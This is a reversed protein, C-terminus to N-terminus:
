QAAEPGVLRALTAPPLRRGALVALVVPRLTEDRTARLRFAAEQEEGTAYRAFMM